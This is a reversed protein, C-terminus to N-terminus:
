EGAAMQFCHITGRDTSVFLRGNAVVLGHARGTVAASWLVKGTATAFATVRDDGGAFLTAGALILDHPCDAVTRWLYCAALQPPVTALEAEIPKLDDKLKEGASEKAKDGLKKLAEKIRKHQAQLQAQHKAIELYRARAFGSLETGTNLYATAETVVIRKAKPFTVFYDRSNADFGRVEGDSGHNQGSGHLFEDTRSVVAFVGGQGSGGFGGIARGTAREFMEPQQRGQPLYLRTQTALMAGQMTFHELKELYRGPGTEAGTTADVACLYSPEWPVLSAGFYAIDDQILVGTRCPWHSILKGDNLLLNEEGSPKRKWVLDGLAADLCYANGDDSGFYVKRQHWSPPLRVPGDTHFVWKEAGTKADLCHVADDVSSGFYVSDGVAIVFLAPDFNRMSELRRLNAYSDWKAPGPWAMQLPTPSAYTWAPLLPVRIAEATVGSRRNDGRYTPWDAAPARLEAVSTLSLLTLVLPLSRNSDRLPLNM